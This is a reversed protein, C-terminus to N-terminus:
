DGCTLTFEMKRHSRGVTAEVEFDNCDHTVIVSRYMRKTEFWGLPLNFTENLTEGDKFRVTKVMVKLTSDVIQGKPGDLFVDVRAQLSSGFKRDTAVIPKRSVDASMQGTDGWLLYVRFGNISAEQAVAASAVSALLMGILLLRM